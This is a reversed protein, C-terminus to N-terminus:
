LPFTAYVSCLVLCKLLFLMYNKLQFQLGTATPIGSDGAWVLWVCGRLGSVRCLLLALWICHRARGLGLRPWSVKQPLCVSAPLLGTLYHSFYPLLCCPKLSWSNSSSFQHQQQQQRQLQQQQQQQQPQQGFLLARPWCCCGPCKPWPRVSALPSQGVGVRVGVAVAVAVVVGLHLQLQSLSQRADLSHTASTGQEEQSQNRQMTAM